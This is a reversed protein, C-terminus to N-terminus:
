KKIGAVAVVPAWGAIEAKFFQTLAEPTMAIPEIIEQRLLQQVDARQLIQTVEWNLQRVLDGNMGAPGSLALWSIGGIDFGLEKFTPADRFAALRQNSAVALLRLTGGDINSALTSLTLSGLDVVGTMIDPIMPGNYPVHTLQLRSQQAVFAALLHGLTGVGATGYTVPKARAAQVLDAFNRLQSNASVVFCSPPGGIYAIHTFSALTDFAVNPNILPAIVQSPLSSVLLTTGDPLARVVETSGTIGGAGPRNEVYVRQGWSDGLHKAIVRGIRDPYGAPAFPVVIRVPRASVAPGQANAAPSAALLGAVVATGARFLCGRM